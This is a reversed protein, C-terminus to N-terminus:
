SSIGAQTRYESPTANCYRKFLRSFYFADQYGVEVAVQGVPLQTSLLLAKSRDIRVQTIYSTLTKGTIRKFSRSLYAPSVLLRSAIYNLSLKSDQYNDQILEMAQRIIQEISSTDNPNHVENVLGIFLIEFKKVIEWISDGSRLIEACSCKAWESEVQFTQLGHSLAYDIGLMILNNLVVELAQLSLQEEIVQTLITHLSARINENNNANLALCLLNQQNMVKKFQLRNPLSVDGATFDSGYLTHLWFYNLSARYGRSIGPVLGVHVASYGIAIQLRTCQLFDEAFRGLLKDVASGNQTDKLLLVIRGQMDTFVVAELRSSFYEESFSQLQFRMSQKQGYEQGRLYQELIDITCVVFTTDEYFSNKRLYAVAVEDRVGELISYFARKKEEANHLTKTNQHELYQIRFTDEDDLDKKIQLLTQKLEEINIPKLLYNVAGSCFAQKAYEFTAFGSIVIFRIQPYKQAVKDILSLGNEEPMTIDTIVLEVPNSDLFDVAQAASQMEGAFCFGHEAWNICCKLRQRVYYEDDVIIFRYQM